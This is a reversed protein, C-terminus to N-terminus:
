KRYTLGEEADELTFGRIQRNIMSKCCKTGTHSRLAKVEKAIERIVHSRDKGNKKRQTCSDNM